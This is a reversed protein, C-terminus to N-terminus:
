RGIGTRAHNARLGTSEVKKMKTRASVKTSRGSNQGAVEPLGGPSHGLCQGYPHRRSSSHSPAAIWHLRDSELWGVPYAMPLWLGMQGENLFVCVQKFGRM